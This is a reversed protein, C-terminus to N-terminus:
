IEKGDRAKLRFEKEPAHVTYHLVGHVGQCDVECVRSWVDEEGEGKAEITLVKRVAKWSGMDETREKFTHSGGAELEKVEIEDETGERNSGFRATLTLKGGHSTVTVSKTYKPPIM